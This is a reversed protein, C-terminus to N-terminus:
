GKQMFSYQANMWQIFMQLFQAKFEDADKAMKDAVRSKMEGAIKAGYDIQTIEAEAKSKQLSAVGSSINSFISDSGAISNLAQGTQTIAQGTSTRPGKFAGGVATGVSVGVGVACFLARGFAAYAETQGIELQKASKLDALEKEIKSFDLFADSATRDLNSMAKVIKAMVVELAVAYICCLLLNVQSKAAEAPTVQSNQINPLAPKPNASDVNASSNAPINEQNAEEVSSQTYAGTTTTTGAAQETHPKIMPAPSLPSELGPAGFQNSFATEGGGSNGVNSDM